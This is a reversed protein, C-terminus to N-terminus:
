KAIKRPYEPKDYLKCKVCAGQTATWIFETYRNASLIINSVLKRPKLALPARGGM